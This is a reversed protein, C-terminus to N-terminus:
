RNNLEVQKNVFPRFCNVMIYKENDLGDAFRIAAETEARAVDGYATVVTGTVLSDEVLGESEDNANGGVLYIDEDIVRGLGAIAQYAMPIYYDNLCLFMDIGAGFEEIAASVISQALDQDWAAYESSLEKFIVGRDSLTNRMNELVTLDREDDPDSMLVVCSLVGDANIDGGAPLDAILGGLVKGSQSIDAGVFCTKDWAGMDAADPELGVLVVPTDAAKAKTIVAGVNATDAIEVILADVQGDIMDDIHRLQAEFNSDAYRIMLEYLLGDTEFDYLHIRVENYYSSYWESPSWYNAVGFM